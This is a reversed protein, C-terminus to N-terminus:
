ISTFPMSPFIVANGKTSTTATQPYPSPIPHWGYSIDEPKLKPSVPHRPIERGKWLLRPIPSRGVPDSPSSKVQTKLDTPKDNTNLQPKTSSAMSRFINSRALVSSILKSERSVDSMPLPKVSTMVNAKQRGTEHLLSGMASSNNDRATTTGNNEASETQHQDSHRRTVLIQPENTKTILIRNKDMQIPAVSTQSRKKNSSSSFEKRNSTDVKKANNKFNYQEDISPVNLHPKYSDKEAAGHESMRSLYVDSLLGEVPYSYDWYADDKPPIKDYYSSGYDYYQNPYDYYMGYYDSLDDKLPGYEVNDLHYKRHNNNNEQLNVFMRRSDHMIGDDKIQDENEHHTNKSRIKPLQHHKGEYGYPLESFLHSNHYEHVIASSNKPTEFKGSGKAYKMLTSAFYDDNTKVQSVIPLKNNKMAYYDKVSKRIGSRFGPSSNQNSNIENSAELETFLEKEEPILEFNPNNFQQPENQFSRPISNWNRYYGMSVSPNRSTPYADFKTLPNYQYGDNRYESKSRLGRYYDQWKQTENFLPDSKGKISKITDDEQKNIAPRHKQKNRIKRKKTSSNKYKSKNLIDLKTSGKFKNKSKKNTKNSKVLDRFSDSSVLRVSETLFPSKRIEDELASYYQKEVPHTRVDQFIPAKDPIIDKEISNHTEELGDIPSQVVPEQLDYKTAGLENKELAELKKRYSKSFYVPTPSVIPKLHYADGPSVSHTKLKQEYDDPVQKHVRGERVDIEGHLDPLNRVRDERMPRTRDDRSKKGNTYLALDLARIPPRFTTIAVTQSPGQSTSLPRYSPPASPSVEWWSRYASESIERPHLLFRTKTEKNPNDHYYKYNQRYPLSGFIERQRQIQSSFLQLSTDFEHLPEFRNNRGGEMGEFFKGKTNQDNTLHDYLLSKVFRHTEEDHKKNRHPERSSLLKPRRRNEIESRKHDAVRVAKVYQVTSGRNLSAKHSLKAHAIAEEITKSMNREFNENGEPMARRRTQTNEGIRSYSDDLRRQAQQLNPEESRNFELHDRQDRDNPIKTSPSLSSYHRRQALQLNPEESRNFELHDRQDRDNPIKTSPSLSSYHRTRRGTASKLQFRSDTLGTTSQTAPVTCSLLEACIVVLSSTNLRMACLVPVTALLM